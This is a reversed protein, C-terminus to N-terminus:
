QNQKFFELMRRTSDATASASYRYISTRGFGNTHSYQIGPQDWAHYTDPYVHWAVPQGAAKMEELQPFCDEPRLEKDEAAMLMLIPTDIERPLLQLWLTTPGQQFVCSAYNSVIARFRMPKGEGPMHRTSALLAAAMGGASYGTYYIRRADVEPLRSLVDFAAYADRAQHRMDAKTQNRCDSVGRPGYSDVAVVMYGAALLEKARDRIHPRSVGGCTHGIVVAPLPGSAVGAPKLVKNAFGGFVGLEAPPLSFEPPTTAVAPPHITEQAVAPVAFALAAAVAFLSRSM